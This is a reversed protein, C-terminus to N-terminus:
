EERKKVARWIWVDHGNIVESDAEVVAGSARLGAICASVDTLSFGLLQAIRETAMPGRRNLCGLILSRRAFDPDMRLRQRHAEERQEAAVLDHAKEGGFIDLQTTKM